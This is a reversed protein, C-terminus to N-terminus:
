GEADEAPKPIKLLAGRPSLAKRPDGGGRRLQHGPIGKECHVGRKFFDGHHSAKLQGAKKLRKLNNDLEVNDIRVLDGAELVRQYRLNPETGEAAKRLKARVSTLISGPLNPVNLQNPTFGTRPSISENYTKLAQRMAAQFGGRTKSVDTSVLLSKLTSNMRECIGNSTPSHPLSRVHRIKHRELMEDFVGAFELGRDTRLTKPNPVFQSLLAEFKEAISAASKVKFCAAAAKKSFGDVVVLMGEVGQRKFFTLDAFLNQGPASSVVPKSIQSRKRQRHIQHSADANLFEQVLPASIGWYKQALISTFRIRGLAKPLDAFEASLVDDM